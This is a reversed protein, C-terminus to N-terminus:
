GFFRRRLNVFKKPIRGLTYRLGNDKYCRGTNRVMRYPWTIMRGIKYARSNALRMAECRAENLAAAARSAEESLGRVEAELEWIRRDRGSWWSDMVPVVKSLERMTIDLMTEVSPKECLPDINGGGNEVMAFLREWRELIRSPAFGQLSTLAAASLRSYLEPDSVCKAMADAMAQTDGYPVSVVGDKESTAVVYPLSFMVTPLAYSKAEMLVMPAGELRSAMLLVSARELFPAVDGHEGAFTVTTGLQLRGVVERVSREYTETEFRGLFTLRCRRKCGISKRKFFSFAELIHIANKRSCIKGVVLFDVDSMPDISRPRADKKVDFTLFNPMYVVNHIGAAHYWSVNAPSLVTVADALPYYKERLQYLRLQLDDLPFFYSSHDAVIARYGLSKVTVLDLFM